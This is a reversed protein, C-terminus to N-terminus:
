REESWDVVIVKRFKAERDLSLAAFDCRREDFERKDQFPGEAPRYFPNKTLTYYSKKGSLSREFCVEYSFGIALEPKESSAFSNAELHTYDANNFYFAYAIVKRVHTNVHKWKEVAKKFSAEVDKISDGTIKDDPFLTQFEEPMPIEFRNKKFHIQRRWEKGLPELYISDTRVVGM